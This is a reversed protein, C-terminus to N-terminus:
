LTVPYFLEIASVAITVPAFEPIPLAVATARAPSPNSRPNV